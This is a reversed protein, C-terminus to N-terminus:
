DMIVLKDVLLLKNEDSLEILYIGNPLNERSLNFSKGSINKVEKYIQGYSNYIILHGNDIFENLQITTNLNYPNPNISYNVQKSIYSTSVMISTLRTLFMDVGGENSLTTTGFSLLTPGFSSYSGILYINGYFDITLGKGEDPGNTGAGKAWVINGANDYKVIFIDAYTGTSDVNILTTSGLSISNTFAGTVYSNGSTASIIGNGFDSGVNGISKAWIISGSFDYKLTFIDPTNGLIDSNMLTSIGFDVSTSTFSGTLYISGSSDSTICGVMETGAGGAGTVWLENGSSDYKVIFIDTSGTNSLLTSGFSILDSYEGSIYVNGFLDTSCSVGVAYGVSGASKAWLVNGSTDFKVLFIDSGGVNTLTSTGFTLTPSTFNGTVYVNGLSDTSIGKGSDSWSGGGGNAWLLNGMNDFKVIFMGLSPLTTTGISFSYSSGTIFVNGYLDTTIGSVIDDDTGGAGVAWLVNGLPDFKVIFIDYAGSNTLTTTGFNISPSSYEGTIYINGFSDTITSKGIDNNIDGFGKSWGWDPVQGLLSISNLFLFQIFLLLNKM